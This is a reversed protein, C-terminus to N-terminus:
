VEYYGGTRDRYALDVRVGDGAAAGLVTERALEPTNAEASMHGLVFHRVGDATMRLVANATDGNSLHGRSGGIRSKLWSPYASRALMDPDHNSEILVLDSGYLCNLWGRRLHGVDTAISLKKGGYSLSYGVPEAADHPIAFPLVNLDEIFFDEGTNFVRRNYSAVKDVDKKTQMARWTEINAYVPIDFQKSLVGVGKIHDGHEHTILIGSLNVPSEEITRLLSDVTRSSLGADVLIRTHGARVFSVCGSSGSRLPCFNINNM